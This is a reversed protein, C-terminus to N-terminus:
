TRWKAVKNRAAQKGNPHNSTSRLTALHHVQLLELIHWIIVKPFFKVQCFSLMIEVSSLPVVLILLSEISNVLAPVVAPVVAPVGNPVVEHCSKECKPARTRSLGPVM